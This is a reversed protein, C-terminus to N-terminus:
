RSIGELLAEHLTEVDLLGVLRDEWHFSRLVHRGQHNELLSDSDVKVIGLVLDVAFAFRRGEGGVLLLKCTPALQGSTSPGSGLIHSLCVCLELRGRINVLGRLVSGVRHPVRHLPGPEVVEQLSVTPMALLQDGLHFTMVSLRQQSARSAEVQGLLQTWQAVEDGSPQREFLRDGAFTKKM